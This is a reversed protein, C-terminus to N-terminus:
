AQPPSRSETKLDSTHVLCIRRLLIPQIDFSSDIIPCAQPVLSQGLLRYCYCLGCSHDGSDRGSALLETLHRASPTSCESKNADVSISDAHGLIGHTEVFLIGYSLVVLIFAFVRKSNQFRGIIM